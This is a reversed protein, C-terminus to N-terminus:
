EPCSHDQVFSVSRPGTSKVGPILEAGDAQYSYLFDIDFKVPSSVKLPKMASRKELAIKTKKRILEQAKSPILTKAAYRAIGKKLPATELNEGLLEEAQRCVEEDGAILVVPVGFYGAIAANFGYEGM